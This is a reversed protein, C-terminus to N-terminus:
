ASTVETIFSISRLAACVREVFGFAVRSCDTKFSLEAEPRGWGASLPVSSAVLVIMLRGFVKVLLSGPSLAPGFLFPAGPNLSRSWNSEWFPGSPDPVFIRIGSSWSKPKSLASKCGPSIKGLRTLRRFRFRFGGDGVLTVGIRDAGIFVIEIQALAAGVVHLLIQHLSQANIWRM